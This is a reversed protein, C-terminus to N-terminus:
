NSPDQWRRANNLHRHKEFCHDGQIRSPRFETVRGYLFLKLILKVNAAISLPPDGLGCTKIGFHHLKPHIPTGGNYFVEMQIHWPVCARARARQRPLWLRSDREGISCLPSCLSSCPM